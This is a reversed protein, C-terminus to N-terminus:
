FSQATDNVSFRNAEAMNQTEMTNGQKFYVAVVCFHSAETLLGGLVDAISYTTYTTTM